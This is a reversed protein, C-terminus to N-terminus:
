YHSHRDRYLLKNQCPGASAIDAGQKHDARGRRVCIGYIEYIVTRLAPLCLVRCAFINLPSNHSNFSNGAHMEQSNGSNAAAQRYM